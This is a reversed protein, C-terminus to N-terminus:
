AHVGSQAEAEAVMFIAERAAIAWADSVNMDDCQGPRYHKWVARRMATPVMRWHKGCM